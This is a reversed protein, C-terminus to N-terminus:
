SLARYDFSKLIKQKTEKTIFTDPIFPLRINGSTAINM